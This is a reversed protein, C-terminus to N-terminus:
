MHPQENSSRADVQQDIIHVSVVGDFEALLAADGGAQRYCCCPVAACVSQLFFCPRFSPLLCLPFSCILDLHM